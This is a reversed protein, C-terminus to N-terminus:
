PLLPVLVVVGMAGGSGRAASGAAPPERLFREKKKEKEVSGPLDGSFSCLVTQPYSPNALRCFASLPRLVNM